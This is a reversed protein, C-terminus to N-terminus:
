ADEPKKFWASAQFHGEKDGWAAVSMIQLNYMNNNNQRFFQDYLQYVTLDWINLINLSNHYAALSSVLNGIEMDTGTGTTKRQKERGSEIKKLIEQARKNKVRSTDTKPPRVYNRQAILDALEEYNEHWIKGTPPPEEAAADKPYTDFCQLEENFRVDEEMFFNLAQELLARLEPDGLILEFIPTGDLADETIPVTADPPQKSERYIKPTLLICSLYLQYTRSGIRCIDRLLPARVSGVLYLPIATPSIRDFYDLKM